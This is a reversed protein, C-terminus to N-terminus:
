LEKFSAREYHLVELDSLRENQGLRGVADSDLDRILRVFTCEHDLASELLASRPRKM